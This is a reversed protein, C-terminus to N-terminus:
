RDDDFAKIAKAVEAVSEPTLGPYLPLSLVEAAARETEPLPGRVVRSSYGPHQHAATAYHIATGIGRERLHTVLKERLRADVRVVFLHFSHEAPGLAEPLALGASGLEERYARALGRREAITDELRALKVRLLAAQLEDLRSNWGPERSIRERDWGYERLARLRDAVAPDSTIVAGGDGIGGLNKTPYFSFTAAHARVGVHEGDWLTGHAQACDEILVLGHTDAIERLADLDAAGGYLHVPVIARTRRGVAGAVAEPSLTMTAPDIETLVPTAGTAVIGAVTALATHSVTIVEDGDGIGHAALALTLADTGSAVGVAAGAGTFSAFEEEFRAVEPGLVYTGGSLVRRAARELEDAIRANEASPAAVPIRLPTTV